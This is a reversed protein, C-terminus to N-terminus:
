ELIMKLGTTSSLKVGISKNTNPTLNQNMVVANAQNIENNKQNIKFIAISM